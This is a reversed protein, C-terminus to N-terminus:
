DWCVLSQSLSLLILRWPQTSFVREKKKFFCFVFVQCPLNSKYDWCKPSLLLFLPELNPPGRPNWSIKSLFFFFSLLFKPTKFSIKMILKRALKVTESDTKRKPVLLFVAAIYPFPPQVWSSFSNQVSCLASPSICPSSFIWYKRLRFGVRVCSGLRRGKM